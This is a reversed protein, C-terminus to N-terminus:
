SNVTEQQNLAKQISTTVKTDIELFQAVRNADAGMYILAIAEKHIEKHESINDELDINPINSSFITSKKNNDWEGIKNYLFDITKKRSDILINKVNTKLKKNIVEAQNLEEVSIDLKTDHYDDDLYDTKYLFALGNFLHKQYEKTLEEVQTKNM